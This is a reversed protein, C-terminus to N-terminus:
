EIDRNLFKVYKACSIMALVVKTLDEASYTKKQQRMSLSGRQTAHGVFSLHTPFKGKGGWMREIRRIERGGWDGPSTM